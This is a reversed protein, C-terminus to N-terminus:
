ELKSISFPEYYIQAPAHQVRGNLYYANWLDEANEGEGHLEFLLDPFQESIALMDEDHDYWKDYFCWGDEPSGSGEWLFLDEIAEQLKASTEKDIDFSFTPETTSAPTTIDPRSVRGNRNYRKVNITYTTYYGM